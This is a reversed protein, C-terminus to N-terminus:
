FGLLHHSAAYLVGFILAWFVVVRTVSSRSMFAAMFLVVVLFWLLVLMIM